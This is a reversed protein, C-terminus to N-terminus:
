WRIANNGLKRGKERSNEMDKLYFEFMAQVRQLIGFCAKDIESM